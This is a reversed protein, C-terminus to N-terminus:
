IKPELIMKPLKFDSNNMLSSTIESLWEYHLNKTALKKELFKIKAKDQEHDILDGLPAIIIGGIIGVGFGVM